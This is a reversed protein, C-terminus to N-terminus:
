ARKASIWCLDLFPCCDHNAACALSASGRHELSQAILGTGDSIPILSLWSQRLRPASSTNL